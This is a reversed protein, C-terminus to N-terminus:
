VYQYGNQQGGSSCVASTTDGLHTYTYMIMVRCSLLKAEISM